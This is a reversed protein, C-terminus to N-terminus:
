CWLGQSTTGMRMQSVWEGKGVVPWNSSLRLVPGMRRPAVPIPLSNNTQFVRRGKAEIEDICDPDSSEPELLEM